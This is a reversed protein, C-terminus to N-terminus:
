FFLSAKVTSLVNELLARLFRSSCSLFTLLFVLGRTNRVEEHTLNM